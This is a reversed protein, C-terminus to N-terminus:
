FTGRRRSRGGRADPDYLVRYLPTAWLRTWRDLDLREVPRLRGAPRRGLCGGRHWDELTAASAAFAEYADRPDLLDGIDDISRGLHECALALRLNRAYSRAGDGLGGPDTPERGDLAHDLV